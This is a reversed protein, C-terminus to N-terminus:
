TSCGQRTVASPLYSISPPLVRSLMAGNQFGQPNRATAVRLAGKHRWQVWADRGASRCRAPDGRVEREARSQALPRFGHASLPNPADRGRQELSACSEPDALVEEITKAVGDVMMRRSVLRIGHSYDVWSAAHGTYLPQIPKGDPKHWGYIAVKGQTTFVRNAIVVDKKHGAVLTGPPREGRAARVMENHRLFVAVTTMAPSPPIPAPRLKVTANAYIDDVMKSTPLVCDLRDAIAQATLPTLPTLFFDDDSGIALYDPAVWYSAKVTGASVTVPVLKRLFSPVNGAKVEALIKEEREDLPLDAISLAFATGKYLRRNGPRCTSRNRPSRRVLFCFLVPM